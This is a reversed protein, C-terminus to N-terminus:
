EEEGRERKGNGERIEKKGEEGEMEEEEEKEKNADKGM